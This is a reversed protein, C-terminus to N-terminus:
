TIGTIAKVLYNKGVTLGCDTERSSGIWFGDTTAKRPPGFQKYFTEPLEDEIAYDLGVTLYWPEYHVDGNEETVKTPISAQFTGKITNGFKARMARSYMIGMVFSDIEPFKESAIIMIDPIQGIDWTVFQEKSEATFTFEHIAYTDDNERDVKVEVSSFGGLMPLDFLVKLASIDAVHLDYNETFTFTPTSDVKVMSTLDAGQHWGETSGIQSAFADPIWVYGELSYYPVYLGYQYMIGITGNGNWLHAYVGDDTKLDSLDYLAKCEAQSYSSRFTYTGGVKLDVTSPYYTGNKSVKLPAHECAGEGGGAVNVTVESFGDTGDEPRYVGNEAVHLPVLTAPDSGGSAVNVTVESFGDCNQVNFLLGIASMDTIHLTGSADFIISPPTTVAIYSNGSRTNWGASLGMESIDAETYVCGETASTTYVLVRIDGLFMVVLYSDGKEYLYSMGDSSTGMAALMQLEAQTYSTKFMFPKGFEFSESPYYKGNKTVTLPILDGTGGAEIARIKDPFEAPKMTGSEGTKERIASAVNQFLEALVNAM